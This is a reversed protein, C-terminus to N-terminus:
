SRCVEYFMGARLPCKPAPCGSPLPGIRGQMHTSAAGVSGSLWTSSAASFAEGSCATSATVPASAAASLASAAKKRMASTDPRPKTRREWTRGPRAGSPEPLPPSAAADPEIVLLPGLRQREVAAGGLLRQAGLPDLDDRRRGPRRFPLPLPGTPPAPAPSRAPPLERAAALQGQRVLGVAATSACIARIPCTRANTTIALRRCVSRKSHACRLVDNVRGASIWRRSSGAANVQSAPAKARDAHSSGAAVM